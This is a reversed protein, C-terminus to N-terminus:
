GLSLVKTALERAAPSNAFDGVLRRVPEFLLAVLFWAPAYDFRILGRFNLGRGTYDWPCRGLLRRLAWGTSLEALYIVLLYVLARVILPASMADHLRELLLATAGYIPLMWLYTKGTAARDREFIVASVGTFLVELCWGLAGYIFFRALVSYVSPDPTGSAAAARGPAPPYREPM